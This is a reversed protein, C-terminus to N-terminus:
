GVVDQPNDGFLDSQSSLPLVLFFQGLMHQSVQETSLASGYGSQEIYQPSLLLIPALCIPKISFM